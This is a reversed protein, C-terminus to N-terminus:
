GVSAQHATSHRLECFAEVTSLPHPAILLNWSNTYASDKKPVVNKLNGWIVGKTNQAMAWIQKFNLLCGM